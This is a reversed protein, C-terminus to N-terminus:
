SNKMCTRHTLSPNPSTPKQPPLFVLSGPGLRSGVVFVGVHPVLGSDFRLWMLPVVLSDRSGICNIIWVTKIM